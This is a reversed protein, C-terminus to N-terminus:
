MTCILYECVILQAPQPIVDFDFSTTVICTYNGEDEQQSKMITLSNTTTGSYKDGDIINNDNFLWQFAEGSFTANVM